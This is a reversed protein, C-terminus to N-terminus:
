FDKRIQLSIVRPASLSQAVVGTFTNFDLGTPYDEDFLNNARLVVQLEKEDNRLGISPNFLFTEGVKTEPDTGDSDTVNYSSRYQLDATLRLSWNASLSRDYEAGISFSQEPVFPLAEGSLDAIVLGGTTNIPANPYDDYSSNQYGYAATLSLADSVKAAFDAEFGYITADTNLTENLFGTPTARLFARQFDSYESYFAAANLSARGGFLINKTGIEFSDVTESEFARDEESAPGPALNYGGSRFGQAFSAYLTTSDSPVYSISANLSINDDGRDSLETEPVNPVGFLPLLGSVTQAYSGGLTEETYRFGASLEFEPSPRYSGSAWIATSEITETSFTTTTGFGDITGSQLQGLIFGLTPNFTGILPTALLTRGTVVGSVGGPYFAPILPAFGPNVAIVADLGITNADSSDRESDFYYGGIMWDFAGDSNSTLRLEQTTQEFAVPQVGRIYDFASGDGDRTFLFDIERRNSISTLTAFGLDLDARGWLNLLERDATPRVNRGPHIRDTPSADTAAIGYIGGPGGFDRIADSGASEATEDLYDANLIIELAETPNFRIQGQIMAADEAKLAGLGALEEYTDRQRIGGSIKASIGNAIPGNIVGRAVLLGYEGAQADISASFEDEPKRTVTNIAGSMANRGFLTGQPGRLVEVAAIDLLLTNIGAADGVFVDDVYIGARGPIGRITVGTRGALNSNETILVNPIAFALDEFDQVGQRDLAAADVVIVSAPVELISEDRKRSTVTVTELVKAEPASGEAPTEATQAIGPASQFALAAFASTAVLRKSLSM